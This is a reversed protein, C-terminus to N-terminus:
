IRACKRKAAIMKAWPEVDVKKRFASDPLIPIDACYIRMSKIETPEDRKQSVPEGLDYRIYIEPLTEAAIRAYEKLREPVIDIDRLRVYLYEDDYAMIHGLVYNNNPIFKAYKDMDLPALMVVGENSNIYQNMARDYADKTYSCNNDNLMGAKTKRPFKLVTDDTSINTKLCESIQM